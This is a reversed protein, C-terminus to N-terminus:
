RRLYGLAELKERLAPDAGSAVVHAASEPRGYAAVRVVRRPRDFAEDLPRGVLADSLPLGLRELLTPAVDYISPADLPRCDTRCVDAGALLLIGPPAHNHDYRGSAEKEWGHDSVVAVLTDGSRLADDVLPAIAADTWAYTRDVVGGFRARDRESWGLAAAEPVGASYFFHSLEDVARLYVIMLDPQRSRWLYLAAAAYFEDNLNSSRFASLPVGKSFADISEFERWTADDVEVFRALEDRDVSDPARQLPALERALEPPWTTTGPDDESTKHRDSWERQRAVSAHDSVVIGSRLREPPWTAWLGIVASRLGAEDALNWLAKSRRLSSTVPVFRLEGLADLAIRMPGLSRRLHLDEIGLRPLQTLYFDEIGHQEPPVGTVMSTWIRPSYTPEISRLPASVGARLLRAFTPLRGAALGRVIRDWSAGDIGILLVRPRGPRHVGALAAAPEPVFRPALALVGGPTQQPDAASPARGAYLLAGLLAPVLTTALAAELGRVLRSGRAPRALAWAV